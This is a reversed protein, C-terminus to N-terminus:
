LNYSNYNFSEKTGNVLLTPIIPLLRAAAETRASRLFTRGGTRWWWINISVQLGGAGMQHEIVAIKWNLFAQKLSFEVSMFQKKVPM